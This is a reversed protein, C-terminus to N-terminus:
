PAVALNLRTAHVHAGDYLHGDPHCGCTLFTQQPEDYVVTWVLYRGTTDAARTVETVTGVSNKYAARAGIQIM